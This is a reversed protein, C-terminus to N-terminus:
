VNQETGAAVLSCLLAPLVGTRLVRGLSINVSYGGRSEQSRVAGMAQIETVVCARRQGDELCFKSGGKVM